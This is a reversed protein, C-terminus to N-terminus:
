ENKRVVINPCDGALSRLARKCTSLGLLTPYIAVICCHFWTTDARLKKRLNMRGLPSHDTASIPKM